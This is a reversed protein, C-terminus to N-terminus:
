QRLNSPLPRSHVITLRKTTRTMAVYLGRLGQPSEDVLLAPEVVVVGDFELGKASSVPVVSIPADLSIEGNLGLREALPPGLSPPCVLAVTGGLLLHLEEAAGAADAV